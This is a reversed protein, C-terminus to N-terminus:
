GGMPVRCDVIPMFLMDGYLLLRERV